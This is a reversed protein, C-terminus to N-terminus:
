RPERSCEAWTSETESVRVAVVTGPITPELEAVAWTLLDAALNESTPSVDMVDNLHRHDFRADLHRKMPTLDGFDTVFGQATLVSCVVILEVSYNHGHMRSCKHGEPLGGLVHSASFSFRKGIRFIM